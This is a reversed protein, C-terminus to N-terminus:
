LCVEAFLSIFLGLRFNEVLVYFYGSYDFVIKQYKRMEAFALKNSCRCLLLLFNVFVIFKRSLPSYDWRSLLM